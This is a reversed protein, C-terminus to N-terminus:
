YGHMEIYVLPSSVTISEPVQLLLIVIEFAFAM